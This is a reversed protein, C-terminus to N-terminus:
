LNARRNRLRPDLIDRLADGLVNFALVALFIAVGPGVAMWMQQQLYPFGNQLMSGWAPTPPQVGLGLFSLSAETLIAFALGLSCQVIVAPITAPFVHVAMLRLNSAGLSRAALVYDLERAALAEGRVLRAYGPAAILGIAFMANWIGAGLASILAIALLLPPVAIVVDVMRMLLTDTLGGRFGAALGIPVGVIFAMTVSVLGVFMSIRAGYIVRSFVDRGIPDTGLWHDASPNARVAYLDQVDPDDLPLIPATAALLVLLIIVSGAIRITPDRLVRGLVPPM